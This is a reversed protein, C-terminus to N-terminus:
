ANSRVNQATALNSPGPDSKYFRAGFVYKEFLLHLGRTESAFVDNCGVAHNGVCTNLCRECAVM